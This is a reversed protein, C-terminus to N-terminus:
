SKRALEARFKALVREILNGKGAALDPHMQFTAQYERGVEELSMAQLETRRTSVADDIRVVVDDRM